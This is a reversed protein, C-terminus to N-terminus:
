HWWVIWRGIISNVNKGAPPYVHDIVYGLGKMHSAFQNAESEEAFSKCHMDPEQVVSAAIAWEVQAAVTEAEQFQYKQELCKLACELSFKGRPQM